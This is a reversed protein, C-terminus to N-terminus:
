VHPRIALGQSETSLWYNVCVPGEPYGIVLGRRRGLDGKALPPALLTVKGSSWARGSPAAM